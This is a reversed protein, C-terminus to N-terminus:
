LVIRSIVLLVKADAGRVTQLEINSPSHFPLFYRLVVRLIIVFYGLVIRHSILRKGLINFMIKRIRLCFMEAKYLLRNVYECPLPLSNQSQSM